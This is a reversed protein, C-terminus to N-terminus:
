YKRYSIGMHIKGMETQLLSEFNFLTNLLYFDQAITCDGRKQHWCWVSM